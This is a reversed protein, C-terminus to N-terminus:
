TLLSPIFMPMHLTTHAKILEQISSKFFKESAYLVAQTYYLELVM